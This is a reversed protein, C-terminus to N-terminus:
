YVNSGGRMRTVTVKSANPGSPSTNLSLSTKPKRIFFYWIALAILALIIIVMTKNEKIYDIWTKSHQASMAAKMSDDDYGDSM